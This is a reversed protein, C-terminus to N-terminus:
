SDDQNFSLDPRVEDPAGPVQVNRDKKDVGAEGVTRVAAIFPETKKEAREERGKGAHAGLVFGIGGTQAVETAPRFGNMDYAAQFEVGGMEFSLASEVHASHQPLEAKWAVSAYKEAGARVVTF